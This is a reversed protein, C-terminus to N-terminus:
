GQGAPRGSRPRELAWSKVIHEIAGLSAGRAIAARLETLDEPSVDIAAVEVTGFVRALKAKRELWTQMLTTVVDRDLSPNAALHDELKHCAESIQTVGFLACNGKLTHLDRKLEDTVATAGGLRQVLRDTEEIFEGFGSRDRAMQEVMRLLDREAAEARERAREATTDTIVILTDGVTGHEIKPKYELRYSRDAIALKSPLQEITLELPMEGELVIGWCLELWAAFDPDHRAIAQWLRQGPQCPGLLQTAFASREAALTGDRQMSLFGQDMNDLLETMERNRRAIRGALALVVGVAAAIGVLSIAAAWATLRAAKAEAKATRLGVVLQGLPKGSSIVPYSAILTDDARILTPERTPGAFARRAERIEAPGRYGLVKGDPAVALAFEFDPDHELYKLGDDVGGPDDTAISPGAVNVLLSTVAHAKAELGAIAEHRQSVVSYLAQLAGAIVLPALAGAILKVRFNHPTASM